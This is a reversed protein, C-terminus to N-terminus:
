CGRVSVKVYNIQGSWNVLQTCNVMIRNMATAGDWFIKTLRPSMRPDTVVPIVGHPWLGVDRDTKITGHRRPVLIDGEIVDYEEKVSIPESEADNFKDTQTTELGDGNLIIFSIIILPSMDVTKYSQLM